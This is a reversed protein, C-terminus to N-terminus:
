FMSRMHGLRDRLEQVPDYPWGFAFVGLMQM